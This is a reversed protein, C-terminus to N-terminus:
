RPAPALLIRFGLTDYSDAPGLAFRFAARCYDPTFAWSGGREARKTGKDANVPDAAPSRKYYEADFRDQCWEWVNGTM